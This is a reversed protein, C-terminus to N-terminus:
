KGWLEKRKAEKYLESLVVWLIFSAIAIMLLSLAFIFIHIIIEALCLM